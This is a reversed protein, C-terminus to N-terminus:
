QSHALFHSWFRSHNCHWQCDQHQLSGLFSLEMSTRKLIPAHWPADLTLQCPFVQPNVTGNAVFSQHKAQCLLLKADLSHASSSGEIAPTIRVLGIELQLHLHDHIPELEPQVLVQSTFRPIHGKGISDINTLATVAQRAGSKSTEHQPETQCGQSKANKRGECPSM